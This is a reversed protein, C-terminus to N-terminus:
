ALAPERVPTLSKLCLGLTVVWESVTDCEDSLGSGAGEMDIGEISSPRTVDMQGFQGQQALMLSVYPEVGSLVVRRPAPGRFTQCYYTSCWEIEQGLEVLKDRVLGGLVRSIEDSGQANGVFQRRLLFEANGQSLRLHEAVRGSLESGGWNVQRAWYLSETDAMVIMTEECGVHVLVVPGCECPVESAGAMSTEAACQAGQHVWMRYLVCPLPELAVQSLGIDDLIARQRILTADTAGFATYQRGVHGGFRVVGAPVYEVHGQGPLFGLEARCRGVLHEQAQNEWDHVRVSGFRLQDGNLVSVVERGKFRHQKLAERVSRAIIHERRFGQGTRPCEQPLSVHCAARVAVLPGRRELQLLKIADSGIDLGITSYTRPAFWSMLQEKDFPDTM